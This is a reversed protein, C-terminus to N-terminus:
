ADRFGGEECQPVNQEYDGTKEKVVPNQDDSNNELSRNVCDLTLWFLWFGATASGGKSRM